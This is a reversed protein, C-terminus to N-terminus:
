PSSEVTRYSIKEASQIMVHIGTNSSPMIRSSQTEFSDIVYLYPKFSACHYTISVGSLLAEEVMKPFPTFTVTVQASHECVLRHEKKDGEQRVLLLENVTM